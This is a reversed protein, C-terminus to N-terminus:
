LGPRRHRPVVPVVSRRGDRTKVTVDHARRFSPMPDRERPPESAIRRIEEVLDQFQAGGRQSLKDAIHALRPEIM